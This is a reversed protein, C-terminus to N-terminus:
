PEKKQDGGKQANTQSMDATKQKEDSIKDATQKSLIEQEILYERTSDESEQRDSM